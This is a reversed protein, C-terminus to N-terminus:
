NKKKKKCCVFKQKIICDKRNNKNTINTNIKHIQYFKKKM